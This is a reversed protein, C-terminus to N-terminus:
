QYELRQSLRSPAVSGSAFGGLHHNPNQKASLNLNDLSVQAADSGSVFPAGGPLLPGLRGRDCAPGQARRPGQLPAVGQARSRLADVGPAAGRGLFAPTLGRQAQYAQVLRM